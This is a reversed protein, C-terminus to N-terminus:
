ESAEQEQKQEECVLQAARQMFYLSLQANGSGYNWLDAVGRCIVGVCKEDNLTELSVGASHLYEKVEDIFITLTDDQYTGGVGLATKVKTLLEDNTIAAM